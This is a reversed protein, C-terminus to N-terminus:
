EGYKYKRIEKRSAFTRCKRGCVSCFGCLNYSKAKTKFMELDTVKVHQKCQFCYLKKDPDNLKM